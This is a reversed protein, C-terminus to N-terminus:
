GSFARETRAGASTSPDAAERLSPSPRHDTTVVLPCRMCAAGGQERWWRCHPRLRCPPLREVTPPLKEVLKEGLQCRTGDFHQCGHEACPAAFRFVETPRVPRSLALLERTVPQPEELYSVMPETPTGGVVGFAVAGEMEPQASPCLLAREEQSHSAPIVNRADRSESPV